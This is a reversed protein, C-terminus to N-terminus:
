TIRIQLRLCTVHHTNQRLPQLGRGSRDNTAVTDEAVATMQPQLGRGSRDNTAATRPWQPRKHSCDEAVDVTTTQPQLGRGRGSHDNTAATDMQKILTVTRQQLKEALTPRYKPVHVHVHLENLWRSEVM